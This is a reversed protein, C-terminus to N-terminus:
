RKPKISKDEKIKQSLQPMIENKHVQSKHMKMKIETEGKGNGKGEKNRIRQRETKMKAKQGNEAYRPLYNGCNLKNMKGVHLTAKNNWGM